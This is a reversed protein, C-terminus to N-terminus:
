FSYENDCEGIELNPLQLAHLEKIVEERYRVKSHVAMVKVGAPMKAIERSFM